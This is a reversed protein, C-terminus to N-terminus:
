TSAYDILLQMISHCDNQRTKKDMLLHILVTLRYNDQKQLFTHMQNNYMLANM